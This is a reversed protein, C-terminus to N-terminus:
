HLSIVRAAFTSPALVGGDLGRAAFTAPYATPYSGVALLGFPIGTAVTAPLNALMEPPITFHNSESAATCLCFGAAGTSDDLAAIVILMTSSPGASAWRVTIGRARTLNRLHDRNTWRVVEPMATEVTFPGIEASGEGTVLVRGPNLLLPEKGAELRRMGPVTGGLVSAYYEPRVADPVLDRTGAATTLHLARGASLLRHSPLRFPVNLDLLQSNLDTTAPPNFLGGVELIGTFTACSGHPPFGFDDQSEDRASESFGALAMDFTHDEFIGRGAELRLATRFIWISGNRGRKHLERTVWGSADVCSTRATELRATVTNSWVGGAGVVVPVECGLPTDAPIRFTAREIGPVVQAIDSTTTRRGGILVTVSAGGFGTGLVSITQGPAGRPRKGSIAMAPLEDSLAGDHSFLGPSAAVVRVNRAPGTTGNRRVAMEVEGLIQSAPMLALLRDEGAYFLPVPNSNVLLATGAIELSGTANRQPQNPGLRAGRVSFLSGAAISGGALSSPMRSAANRVGAASIHPPGDVVALLLM